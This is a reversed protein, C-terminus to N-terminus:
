KRDVEARDCYEVCGNMALCAIAQGPRFGTPDRQVAQQPGSVAARLLDTPRSPFIAFESGVM